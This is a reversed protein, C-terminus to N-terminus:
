KGWFRVFCAFFCNSRRFSLQQHRSFDLLIPGLHPVKNSCNSLLFRRLLTTGSSFSNGFGQESLSPKSGVSSNSDNPTDSCNPIQSLPSLSPFPSSFPRPILSFRSTRMLFRRPDLVERRQMIRSYFKL